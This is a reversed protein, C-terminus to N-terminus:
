SYARPPIIGKSRIAREIDGMMGYVRSREFYRGFESADATDVCANFTDRAQELERELDASEFRCPGICGTWAQGQHRVTVHLCRDGLETRERFLAHSPTSTPFCSMSLEGPPFGFNLFLQYLWFAELTIEDMQALRDAVYILNM